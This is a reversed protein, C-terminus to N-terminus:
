CRKSYGSFTLARADFNSWNLAPRIALYTEFHQLKGNFSTKYVRKEKTKFIYTLSSLNHQPSFAYYYINKEELMM